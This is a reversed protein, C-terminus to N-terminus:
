FSGFIEAEADVGSLDGLSGIEQVFPVNITRDEMSFNEASDGGLPLIKQVGDIASNILSQASDVLKNATTEVGKLPGGVVPIRGAQDAVQSILDQAGDVIDNAVGQPVDIITNVAGGLSDVTELKSLTLMSIVFGVAVLLSLVPDKVGTFIILFLVILKVLPNKLLDRVKGPLTPAVLGAYLVLFLKLGNSIYPRDLLALPKMLLAGIKKLSLLKL